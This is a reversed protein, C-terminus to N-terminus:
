SILRACVAVLLLLVVAGAVLGIGHSVTRTAQEEADLRLHDQVPMDRPPSVPVVVPPRWHPPPMLSRPPGAYPQEAPAGASSPAPREPMGGPPRRWFPDDGADAPTSPRDANTM